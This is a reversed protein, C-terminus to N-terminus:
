WLSSVPRLVLGPEVGQVDDVCAVGFMDRTLVMNLKQPQVAAHRPKPQRGCKSAIDHMQKQGPHMWLIADQKSYAQLAALHANASSDATTDVPLGQVKCQQAPGPHLTKGHKGTDASDAAAAESGPKAITHLQRNSGALNAKSNTRRKIDQAPLGAGDLIQDPQLMAVYLGCIKLM